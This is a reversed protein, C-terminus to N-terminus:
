TQLAPASTSFQSRTSCHELSRQKPYETFLMLFESMGFLPQEKLCIDASKQLVYYGQNIVTKNRSSRDTNLGARCEYYYCLQQSGNLTVSESPQRSNEYEFTRKKTNHM